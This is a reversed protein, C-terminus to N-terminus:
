TSSTWYTPMVNSMSLEERKFTILITISGHMEILKVVVKNAFLGVKIKKPVAKTMSVNAILKPCVCYGDHSSELVWIIM